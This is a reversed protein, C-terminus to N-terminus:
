NIIDTSITILECIFNNSIHNGISATLGIKEMLESEGFYAGLSASVVQIIGGFPYHIIGFLISTVIRTIRYAIDDIEKQYTALNDGKHIKFNLASFVIIKKITQQILGRFIVEEIIPSVVVNKFFSSHGVGIKVASYIINSNLISGVLKSLILLPVKITVFLYLGKKCGICFNDFNFQGIAIM